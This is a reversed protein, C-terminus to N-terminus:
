KGAGEASQIQQIFKEPSSAVLGDWQKLVNGNEDLLVTFPFSGQKNYKEALEENQKAKDKPLQHKKLRPFDAHLLVLHDKAYSTFTEKEFIEKEMKICPICWDSGSFVLLILKNNEKALSEAATLDPSQAKAFLTCLTVFSVLLFKM